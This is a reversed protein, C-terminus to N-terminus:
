LAALRLQAFDFDGIPTLRTGDVSLRKFSQGARRGIAIVEGYRPHRGGGIKLAEAPQDWLLPGKIKVLM